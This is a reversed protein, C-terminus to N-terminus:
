RSRIIMDDRHPGVSIFDIRHGLASELYDIYDRAEHPLRQYHRVARLNDPWGNLTEFVPQCQDLCSPHPFDNIVQDHYRYASIVKITKLGSLSDLKTLVVQNARQLLLGYRTAVCDFWGVRRIRKTM